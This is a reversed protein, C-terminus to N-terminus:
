PPELKALIRCACELAEPCTANDCAVCLGDVRPCRGILLQVERNDTSCHECVLETTTGHPLVQAAISLAFSTVTHAEDAM